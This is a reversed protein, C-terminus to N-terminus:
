ETFCKKSKWFFLFSGTSAQPTHGQKIKERVGGFPGKLLIRDVRGFLSVERVSFPFLVLVAFADLDSQSRTEPIRSFRTNGRDRRIRNRYAQRRLSFKRFYGGIDGSVLPHFEERPELLMPLTRKQNQSIVLLFVIRM